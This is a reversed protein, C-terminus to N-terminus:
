KIPKGNVDLANVTIDVPIGPRHQKIIKNNLNRVAERDAPTMTDVSFDAYKVTIVVKTPNYEDPVFEIKTIDGGQVKRSIGKFAKVWAPEQPAPAVEKVPEPKVVKEPEKVPKKPKDDGILPMDSLTTDPEVEDYAVTDVPEVVEEEVVEKSEDKGSLGLAALIALIALLALAIIIWMKKKSGGGTNSPKLAENIEKEYKEKLALADPKKPCAPYKSIFESLRSVLSKMDDVSAPRATSLANWENLWKIEAKLRADDAEKKKLAELQAHLSKAFSEAEGVKSWQPHRAIFDAVKSLLAQCEEMNTAKQQSLGKWELDLAKEEGDFSSIKNELGSKLAIADDLKPSVPYEDIFGNVSKLLSECQERNTPNAAVIQAWERQWLSNDIRNELETRRSEALAIKSSSPYKEIFDSIRRIEQGIEKQSSPQAKELDAWIKTSVLDTEYKKKLAEAEGIKDSDPYKKIFETINGIVERLAQEGDPNAASIQGWAKSEQPNRLQDFLEDPIRGRFDEVTLDDYRELLPLIRDITVKNRIGEIQKLLAEKQNGISAM